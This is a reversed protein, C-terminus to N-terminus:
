RGAFTQATRSSTHSMRATSSNSWCMSCRRHAFYTCHPRGRTAVWSTQLLGAHATSLFVCRHSVCCAVHLLRCVAHLPRCVVHLPRCAVSSLFHKLGCTAAQPPPPAASLVNVAAAEPQAASRFGTRQRHPTTCTSWMTSSGVRLAIILVRLAIILVRLAIILVRLAIILVRPAIILVQRVRRQRRALPEQALSTFTARHV